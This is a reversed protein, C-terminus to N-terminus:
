EKVVAEDMNLILSAVSAYAALEAADLDSRAASEGTKLYAAAAARNSAFEATFRELARTLIEAQRPGPTRSLVLAYGYAIRERAGAGGEMMMREGLKRAAEVFTVDNMLNLAQLPSNTRNEFVACQERNPSDFNMMYPPPVTRKWYTYLSRRYLDAGKAQVYGRDGSLEQWLGAPQYPKVSPGGVREALLGSAALAQDRITEPGLRYRPGRAVLRNDPDRDLLAPTVASSQRYAASTVMLKQMAKVDWGSEMFEVALWDLLEPHVPREGQAGFDDVTKVIGPGFYAQWFRNV